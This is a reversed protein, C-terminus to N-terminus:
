NRGGRQALLRSGQARLRSDRRKLRSGMAKPWTSRTRSDFDAASGVRALADASPATVDRADFSQRALRRPGPAVISGARSHGERGAGAQAGVAGAREEAGGAARPAPAFLLSYATLVVLSLAVAVLLRREEM